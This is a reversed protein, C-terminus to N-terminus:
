FAASSLQQGQGPCSVAGPLAGPSRRNWGQGWPQAQNGPKEGRTRPHYSQGHARGGRPGEPDETTLFRNPVHQSAQDWGARPRTTVQPRSVECVPPQPPAAREAPLPATQARDNARHSETGEKWGTATREEQSVLAEPAWIEACGSAALALERLYVRLPQRNRTYFM